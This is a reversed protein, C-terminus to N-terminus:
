SVFSLNQALYQTLDFNEVESMPKVRWQLGAHRPGSAEDEPAPHRHVVLVSHAHRVPVDWLSISCQM